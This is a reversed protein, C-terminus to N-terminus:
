NNTEDQKERKTGILRYVITEAKLKDDRVLHSLKYGDLGMNNSEELLHMLVTAEPYPMSIIDRLKIEVIREYNM